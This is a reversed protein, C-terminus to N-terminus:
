SWVLLPYSLYVMQLTVIIEVIICGPSGLIVSWHQWHKLKRKM